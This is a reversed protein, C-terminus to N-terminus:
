MDKHKSNDVESITIVLRPDDGYFKWGADEVVQKDDGWALGNLADMIVKLINDADPKVTPRIENLFMAAKRKKPASQPIPFWAIWELRVPGDILGDQNARDYCIKIWNEYLVTKDSPHMTTFKGRHFPVARGKGQPKGPVVITKM